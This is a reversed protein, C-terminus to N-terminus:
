CNSDISKRKLYTWMAFDSSRETESLFRVYVGFVVLTQSRCSMRCILCASSWMRIFVILSSFMWMSSALSIWSRLSTAFNSFRYFRPKFLILLTLFTMSTRSFTAVSCGSSLLSSNRSLSNLSKLKTGRSSSFQAVREIRSKRPLLMLLSSMRLKVLPSLFFMSILDIKYSWLSFTFVASPLARRSAIIWSSFSLKKQSTKMEGLATSSGNIEESLFPRIRTSKVSSGFRLKSARQLYRAKFSTSSSLRLRVLSLSSNNFCSTLDLQAFIGRFFRMM